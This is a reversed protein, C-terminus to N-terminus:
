DGGRSLDKLEVFAPVGSHLREQPDDIQV